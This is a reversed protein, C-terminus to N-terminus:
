TSQFLKNQLFVCFFMVTWEKQYGMVPNWSPDIFHFHFIFKATHFSYAPFLFSFLIFQYVQFFCGCFRRDM